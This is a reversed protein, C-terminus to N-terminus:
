TARESMSTRPAEWGRVSPEIASSSGNKSPLVDLRGGGGFGAALGAEPGSADSLRVAAQPVAGASM